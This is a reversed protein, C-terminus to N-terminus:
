HQKLSKQPEGRDKTASAEPEHQHARRGLAEDGFLIQALCSHQSYTLFDLSGM